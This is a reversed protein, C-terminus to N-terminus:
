VIWQFYFPLYVHSIYIRNARLGKRLPRCATVEHKQPKSFPWLILTAIYNTSHGYRPMEPHQLPTALHM